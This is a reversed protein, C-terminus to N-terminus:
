RTTRTSWRSASVRHERLRTAIDKYTANETVAIVHTSMVDKVIPHV